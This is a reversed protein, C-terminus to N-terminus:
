PQPKKLGTTLGSILAKVADSQSVSREHLKTCLQTVVFHLFRSAVVSYDSMLQNLTSVSLALVTAGQPGTVVDAMRRSQSFFAVEGVLAGYETVAVLVKGNQCINLSGDLLLYLTQSAHGHVILNQNADCHLINSKALLTMAEDQDHFIDALQGKIEGLAAKINNVYLDEQQPIASYVPVDAMVREVIAPVKDTAKTRQRLAPLLPCKISELYPFDGTVVCIAVVLRNSVHNAVKGHPRWGLKRYGNILHPECNGLVVEVGQSAAWEYLMWHLQLSLMSGRLEPLVMLRTAIAIEHDELCGDFVNMKYIERCPDSFTTDTGINLRMTGVAKGECIAIATKGTRDYDDFLLRNEHDAEDKFLSQGEVYMEYRFRYVAAREEETEVWKLNYDFM